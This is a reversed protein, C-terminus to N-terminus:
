TAVSESVDRYCGCDGWAALEEKGLLLFLDYGAPMRAKLLLEVNQRQSPWRFFERSDLNECTESLAYTFSGPYQQHAPV